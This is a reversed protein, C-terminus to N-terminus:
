ELLTLLSSTDLRGGGQKQVEAYLQDIQETVSLRADINRAEALAIGLDKRMWDVAFGFDYRGELMTEARNDMQWSQAAGKSIVEVVRSTDLGAQKAFHLGESLAQLLGAICIQNVAKTLQGAGAPGMLLHKKGYCDLWGIARQYVKEDGGVMITLTGNEAGAQGGSIPADLFAVGRETALSDLERALGPSVTTHDILCAGSDMAALAGDDGLVVTRLDDDNGTCVFVATAGRAADAPTPAVDCRAVGPNGEGYEALWSEARSPTRNYVRV